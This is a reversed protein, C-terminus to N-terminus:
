RIPEGTLKFLNSKHNDMRKMLIVTKLTRLYEEIEKLPM